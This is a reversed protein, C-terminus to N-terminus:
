QKERKKYIVKPDFYIPRASSLLLGVKLFNAKLKNVGFVYRYLM